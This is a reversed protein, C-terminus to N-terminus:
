QVTNAIPYDNIYDMQMSCDTGAWGEHCECTENVTCKGNICGGSCNVVCLNSL